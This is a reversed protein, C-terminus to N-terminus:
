LVIRGSYHLSTLKGWQVYYISTYRLKGHWDIHQQRFVDWKDNLGSTEHGHLIKHNKAIKGISRFEM